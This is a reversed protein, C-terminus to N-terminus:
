AHHSSLDDNGASAILYVALVIGMLVTVTIIGWTFMWPVFTGIKQARAMNPMLNVGVVVALASLALVVVATIWSLTRQM